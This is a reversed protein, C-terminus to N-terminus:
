VEGAEKKELYANIAEVLKEMDESSIGHVWGAQELTEGSAAGCYICHMGENMLIAAIDEDVQLADTVIMDKSIKAM